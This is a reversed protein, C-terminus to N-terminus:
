PRRSGDSPQHRRRNRNGGSKGRGPAESRLAHAGRGRHSGHGGQSRVAPADSLGVTEFPIAFGDVLEREIPKGLKREIDRVMRRDESTVLTFAEGMCTARGTRGIRHTYSEATNPIDYNIVHSVGSVDIGRAAIDTAVLVAFKGARFDRIARDRANQSMNGQLSTATVGERSLQEALHRARHKTRTFVIASTVDRHKLLHKLLSTKKKDDVPFIAHRVTKAPGQVDVEVTVPSRLTENALKRIEEPMTASFLLNQRERPLAGLVRRIDPLFGMDFMHDAEDLVLTRVRALDIQRQRHLDLLRGPCAVVIDPRARLKQIQPVPSVGGYIVVTKLKTFQALRRLEEAIQTALERTPALILARTGRAGDAQLRHLLPLGFAATKGTGTQALGLVDHGNLIAPIAQTQIPTPHEFGIAAVADLLKPHLGFGAFGPALPTSSTM